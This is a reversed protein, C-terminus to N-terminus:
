QDIFKASVWGTIETKVKYWGGKSELIEVKTGRELPRAVKKAGTDNNERINLLSSSVHGFTPTHLTEPEEELIGHNLVIDRLKQIPYLPGPDQKRGPSIEDHGVIYKIPFLEALEICLYNVAALQDPDFVHWYRPNKENKHKAMIAKDPTVPNNFYTFFLNDSSKTLYGPNVIELGLSYKNIGNRKGMASIGAHWAIKNLPMLQTIEGGLDIVFHASVQRKSQFLANIDASKKKTGTYHIVLTDPFGKGFTGSDRDMKDNIYKQAYSTHLTLKKKDLEINNENSELKLISDSNLIM